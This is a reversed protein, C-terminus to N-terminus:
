CTTRSAIRWGARTLARTCRSATRSGTGTSRRTCSAPTPGCATRIAWTSRSRATSGSTASTSTSSLSLRTRRGSPSSTRSRRATRRRCTSISRRIRRTPRGRRPRQWSREPSSRCTRRRGFADEHRRGGERPGLEGARIRPAGPLVPEHHVPQRVRRSAEHRHPHSRVRGDLPRGPRPESSRPDDPLPADVYAVVDHAVFREFDGTTVSSSYMSGNHATKSDPLVVIMERAGQAFAGEITQPVHIEGRGSSPASRTATCRTSSRIAARSTRRMARRCSCSRTATSPMGKWTARSPPGTSRSASWPRPGPAPFRRRCRPRCRHRSRFAPPSPWGGATLVLLGRTSRM